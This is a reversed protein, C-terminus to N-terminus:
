SAWTFRASYSMGQSSVSIWMNRHNRNNAISHAYPVHKGHWGGPHVTVMHYRFCPLCFRDLLDMPRERECWSVCMVSHIGLAVPHGDMKRTRALAARSIAYPFEM